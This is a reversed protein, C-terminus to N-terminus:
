RLRHGRHVGAAWPFGAKLTLRRHPEPRCAMTEAAWPRNSPSLSMAMPRRRRIWSGRGTGAALGSPRAHTVAPCRSCPRRMRCSGNSCKWMPMVASFAAAAAVADGALHLVLQGQGALAAGAAMASPRKSLWITGISILVRLPVHLEVDVLVRPSATGLLQGAHLRRELFVAADGGAVGAADVVAGGGQHQGGTVGHV